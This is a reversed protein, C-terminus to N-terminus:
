GARNEFGKDRAVIAFGTLQNQLSRRTRAPHATALKTTRQVSLLASNETGWDRVLEALGGEDSM